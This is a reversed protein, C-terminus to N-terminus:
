LLGKETFYKKFDIIEIRKRLEDAIEDQREIEEIRIKDEKSFLYNYLNAADIFIVDAVGTPLADYNKVGKISIYRDIVMENFIYGVDFIRRRRAKAASLTRFGNDDRYRWVACKECIQHPKGKKDHFGGGINIINKELCFACTIGSLKNDSRKQPSHYYRLVINPLIKEKSIKGSNNKM